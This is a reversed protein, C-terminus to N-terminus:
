ILDDHIWKLKPEFACTNLIKAKSAMKNVKDRVFNDKFNDNFNTSNLDSFTIMKGSEFFTFLKKVGGGHLTTKTHGFELGTEAM